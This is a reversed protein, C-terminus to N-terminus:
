RPALLHALDLVDLMRAAMKSPSRLTLTRGRNDLFQGARAFARMTGTDIFDTQALDVIVPGDYDAIVRALADVIEPLTLVDAEGRLTVITAGGEASASAISVAFPADPKSRESLSV